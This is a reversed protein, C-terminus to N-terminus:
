SVTYADKKLKNQLTYQIYDKQFGMCYHYYSIYHMKNRKGCMESISAYMKDSSHLSHLVFKLSKLYIWRRMFLKISLTSYTNPSGLYDM